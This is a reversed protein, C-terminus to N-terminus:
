RTVEIPIRRSAPAASARRPLELGRMMTALVSSMESFADLRALLRQADDGIPADSAEALAERVRAGTERFMELEPNFYQATWDALIAWPDTIGEYYDRRDSRPPLRRAVRARELARLAVSVSSKAAGVRECLEDLALPSTALFLETYLRGLLPSVGYLRCIRAM